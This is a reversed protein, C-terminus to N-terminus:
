LGFTQINVKKRTRLTFRNMGKCYTMNAFVPEIIQMRRSYLERYVPNDIKERMKQSLNDVYKQEVVYLTRQKANQKTICKERLPCKTCDAQKAQYQKGKNNRLTVKSRYILKKGAPCQYYDNEEDYQFDEITYKKKETYKKREALSPDRKRFQPDPIIVEV